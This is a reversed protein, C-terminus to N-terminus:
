IEFGLQAAAIRWPLQDPDNWHFLIAHLVLEHGFPTSADKYWDAITEATIEDDNANRADFGAIIVSHKEEYLVRVLKEMSKTQRALREYYTCYFVRSSVYDFHRAVGDPAVFVSFVCANANGGVGIGANRMHEPKSAGLKHRHPNPDKYGSLRRRYWIEVPKGTEADVESAFVKNFQHFNEINQAPPLDPQRHEVPGLRMPSLENMALVLEGRSHAKNNPLITFFGKEVPVPRMMALKRLCIKGRIADPNTTDKAAKTLAELKEREIAQKNPNEPLERRQSDGKAHVGCVAQGFSAWYARNNCKHSRECKAEGHYVGTYDRKTKGTFSAM